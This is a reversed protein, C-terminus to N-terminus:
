RCLRGTAAVLIALFAEADAPAVSVMLTSRGDRVATWVHPANRHIFEDIPRGGPGDPIGLVTKGSAQFIVGRTGDLGFSATVTEDPATKWGSVTSACEADLELVVTRHAGNRSATNGDTKSNWFWAAGVIGAAFVVIAALTSLVARRRANGGGAHWGAWAMLMGLGYLLCIPVAMLIQSVPEPPTFVAAVIFAVVIFHRSYKIMTRPNVLHLMGAFMMVLPLEFIFGFVIMFFMSMGFTNRITPALYLDGSAVGFGALFEVVVPVFISYSFVVGLGFFLAVLSTALGFIRKERRRLAPAIFSAVQWIIWPSSIVFAAAMSAKVYVSIGEMVDLAQLNTVGYPSLGRMVPRALFRFIQEHFTWSLAVAALFGIAAKIIRSRLETLHEALTMDRDAM